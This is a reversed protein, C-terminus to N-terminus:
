SFDFFRHWWSSGAYAPHRGAYPHDLEEAPVYQFGANSVAAILRQITEVDLQETSCHSWTTFLESFCSFRLAFVTDTHKPRAGPRHISLDVFFSADQVNDDIAFERGSIKELQPLLARVREIATQWDFGPPCEANRPDDAAEVIQKVKSQVDPSGIIPWLSCSAPPV